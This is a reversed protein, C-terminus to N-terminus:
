NQNIKKIERWLTTRSIGLMQAALSQNNGTERLTELIQRRRRGNITEVGMTEFSEFEDLVEDVLPKDIKHDCIVCLREIINQFERINGPWNYSELSDIAAESITIIKGLKEAHHSIFHRTYDPVDEKRHRLPPIQLRLINLRYYLDSRFKGKSIEKKLNKNTAAIIRVDISIVKDSGLPRVEMEQIVRLLTSQFHISTESIEDLFITGKHAMTFLGDKGGRRAGTFAGELYGFLESELLTDPIAGCNVAVFPGRKRSSSSHIGQAFVEKGTGSEGEILVTSDVDGYKKALLKTKEMTKSKGIIDEMSFRAIHGKEALKTRIINEYDRIKTIDEVTKLSGVIENGVKVPIQNFLATTKGFKLFRDTAIARSKPLDKLSKKPWVEKLSRGTANREPVGIIKAAASNFTTIVGNKDTAVVGHNINELIAQFLETKQSEQKRVKLLRNAEEFSKLIDDKTTELSVTALGYKGALLEAIVGGLLVRIPRKSMMRQKVYEEAENRNSIEFVELDVNLLDGLNKVGRIIRESGVVTIPRNFSQAKHVAAIMNIPSVPIDVVPITLDMKELLVTTGGRSIIVQVGESEARHAIDVADELLGNILKIEKRGHAAQRAVESVKADPSIILIPKM